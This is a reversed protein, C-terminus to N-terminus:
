HALEQLQKIAQHYLQRTRELTVGIQPAIERFTQEENIGLGHYLRVIKQQRVPLKSLLSFLYRQDSEHDMEDAPRAIAPNDTEITEELTLGDEVVSQNMSLQLNGVDSSARIHDADLGTLAQLQSVKPYVGHAKFFDQKARDLKFIRDSVNSPLRVIARKQTLVAKIAQQVWWYAYTTFRFGKNINYKSAAKLLGLTGEQILEETDIGKDTYRNAIHMVLRINAQVLANRKHEYKKKLALAQRELYQDVKDAQKLLLDFVNSRDCELKVLCISLTKYSVHDAINKDPFHQALLLLDYQTLFEDIVPSTQYQEILIHMVQELLNSQALLTQALEQMTRDMTSAIEYEQEPNLISIDPYNQIIRNVDDSNM